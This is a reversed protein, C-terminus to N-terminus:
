LGAPRTSRPELFLALSPADIVASTAFPADCEAGGVILDLPKVNPSSSRATDCRSCRLLFRELILPWYSGRVCGPGLQFIRKFDIMQSCPWRSQHGSSWLGSLLPNFHSFMRWGRM